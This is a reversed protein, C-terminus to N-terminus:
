RAPRHAGRLIREVLDDTLVGYGTAAWVSEEAPVEYYPVSRGEYEAPLVTPRVRDRVARACEPCLPVRITRSGGFERWQIQGTDNGHLPNAYCPRRPTRSGALADEALDLLVLVGVADTLTPGEAIMRDHVRAAADRADLARSLNGRAAGSDASLREGLEILDREGREVLSELRARDANDFAAHQTLPASARRRDRPRVAIRYLPVALGILVLAGAVAVWPIWAAGAPTGSVDPPGGIEDYYAEQAEEYAAEPDDSLAAEVAADVLTPLTRQGGMTVYSATLAGYLAPRGRDDPAGGLDEGELDGRRDYVLYHREGGGMRDHVASALASADGDWPDGEVLPVVIVYLDLDGEEIRRVTRERAEVSFADEYAPDVLVPSEALAAAIEQAPSAPAETDAALVPPGGLLVAALIMLPVSARLAARFPRDPTERPDTSM